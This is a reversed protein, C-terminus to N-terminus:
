VVLQAVVGLRDGFQGDGHAVQQLAIERDVVHPEIDADADAGARDDGADDALLLEDVVQPAVSDIQGAPDGAFPRRPVDLDVFRGVLPQGRM